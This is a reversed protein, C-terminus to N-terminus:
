CDAEKEGWSDIEDDAIRQMFSSSITPNNTVVNLGTNQQSQGTATNDGAVQSKGFGVPSPAIIHAPQQANFPVIDQM